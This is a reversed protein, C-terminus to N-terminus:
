FSNIHFRFLFAFLAVLEPLNERGNERSDFARGKRSRPTAFSSFRPRGPRNSGHRFSRNERGEKGEEDSRFSSDGFDYSSLPSIRAFCCHVNTERALRIDVCLRINPNRRKYLSSPCVCLFLPFSPPPMLLRSAHM